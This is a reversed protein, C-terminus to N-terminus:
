KEKEEASPESIDTVSKLIEGTESDILYNYEAGDMEFEVEYYGKDKELNFECEFKTVDAASFGAKRLAIGKARDASVAAAKEAEREAEEERKEDADERKEEETEEKIEEEEEEDADVESDLLTGASADFEYEYETNGM